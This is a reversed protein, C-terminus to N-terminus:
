KNATTSSPSIYVSDAVAFYQLLRAFFPTVILQLICLARVDSGINNFKGTSRVTIDKASQLLKCKLLEHLKSYSVYKRKFEKLKEVLTRYRTQAEYKNSIM